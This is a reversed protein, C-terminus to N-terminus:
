GGSITCIHLPILIGTRQYKREEMRRSTIWKSCTFYKKYIWFYRKQQAASFPLKDSNSRLQFWMRVRPASSIALPTLSLTQKFTRLRAQFPNPSSPALSIPLFLITSVEMLKFKHLFYWYLFMVMNCDAHMMTVNPFAINSKLLISHDHHCFEYRGYYIGPFHEM